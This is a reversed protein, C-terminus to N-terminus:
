RGQERAWNIIGLWARKCAARSEIVNRYRDCKLIPIDLARRSDARQTLATDVVEFITSPNM